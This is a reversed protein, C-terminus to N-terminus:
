DAGDGRPVPFSPRDRADRAHVAATDWRGDVVLWGREALSSGSLRACAEGALVLPASGIALPADAAGVWVDAAEEEGPVALGLVLFGGSVALFALDLNGRGDCLGDLLDVPDHEVVAAHGASAAVDVV